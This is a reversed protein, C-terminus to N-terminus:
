DSVEPKQLQVFTRRGLIRGVEHVATRMVTEVDSAGRVKATIERLIQERRARKTTEELLRVRELVVTAQEALTQLLRIAQPTFTYGEQYSNISLVGMVTNQGILPITANATRGSLNQQSRVALRPDGALRIIPQRTNIAESTTPYDALDLVEHEPLESAPTAAYQGARVMRREDLLIYLNVAEVGVAKAVQPLFAKVAESQTLSATLM